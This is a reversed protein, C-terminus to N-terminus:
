VAGPVRCQAQGLVRVSESELTCGRTRVFRSHSISRIPGVTGREVGALMQLNLLHVTAKM